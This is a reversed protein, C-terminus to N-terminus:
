LLLPIPWQLKNHWECDLDEGGETDGVTGSGGRGGHLSVTTIGTPYVVIGVELYEEHLGNFFTVIGLVTVVISGEAKAPVLIVVIEIGDLTVVIPFLAKSPQLLRM